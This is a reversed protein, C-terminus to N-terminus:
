LRSCLIGLVRSFFTVSIIYMQYCAQTAEMIIKVEIARTKVGHNVRITSHQLVLSAKMIIQWLCLAM